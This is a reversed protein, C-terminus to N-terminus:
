VLACLSNNTLIFGDEALLCGDMVLQYYTAYNDKDADIFVIDFEQGIIGLKEM